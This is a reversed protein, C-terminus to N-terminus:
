LAFNFFPTFYHRPHEGFSLALHSENVNELIVEKFYTILERYLKFNTDILGSIKLTLSPNFMEFQQAINLLFYVVDEPTEYIFTQILQLVSDKMVAVIMFTNYFQITILQKKSETAGALRKLINSYTHHFTPREFQQMLYAYNDEQMRYVNMIGPDIPLHEFLTKALQDEGHVLGLYDSAIEKNFKFIPVPICRENNTYISVGSVSANLLKSQQRINSFLEGFNAGEVQNFTYLEFAAIDKKNEKTVLCAVHSDAIELILQDNDEVLFPESSYISFNKNPM